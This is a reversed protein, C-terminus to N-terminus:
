PSRGGHAGIVVVIHRPRSGLFHSLVGDWSLIPGNTNVKNINSLPARHQNTSFFIGGHLFAAGAFLSGCYASAAIGHLVSFFFCLRHLFGDHYIGSVRCLPFFFSLFFSLVTLAM